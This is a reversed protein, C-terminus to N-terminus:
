AVALDNTYVMGGVWVEETGQLAAGVVEADNCFDFQAGKFL